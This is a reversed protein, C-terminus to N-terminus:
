SKRGMLGRPQEEVPEPEVMNDQEEKAEEVTEPLKSRLKKMALAIESSSIKDEKIRQDIGLKYSIGADDGIYAMMEILVPMILMGVDVSHLGQMTGGLQMTEAISTLPIGLEMVDLLQDYVEPETLRPLYYELAQEPTSYQAPKQWPRNGLEHTLSQGAIPGDIKVAPAQM